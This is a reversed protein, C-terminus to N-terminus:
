HRVLITFEWLPYDHLLAVSSSFRRKCHDFWVLPDAYHLHPQRRDVDSYTSLANFAFGARGLAALREVTRMMYEHWTEDAADLKVNLIGSAVAYDAPALSAEDDTFVVGARPPHVGRARAIMAPACDYGVYEIRRGQCELHDLLAGYGCGYDILTCPERRCVKMLQDFRLQQSDASNWDVGRATVGHEELRSTYYRSVLERLQEYGM